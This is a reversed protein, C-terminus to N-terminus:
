GNGLFWGFRVQIGRRRQRTIVEVVGIWEPATAQVDKRKEREGKERQM